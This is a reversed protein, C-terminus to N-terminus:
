TSGARKECGVWHLALVAKAIAEVRLRAVLQQVASDEVSQFLSRGYNLAPAAKVFM